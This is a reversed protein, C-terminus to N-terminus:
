TLRLSYCESKINDVGVGLSWVVVIKYYNNTRGRACKTGKDKGSLGLLILM